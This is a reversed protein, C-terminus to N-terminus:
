KNKLKKQAQQKIEEPKYVGGTDVMLSLEALRSQSVEPKPVFEPEAKKKSKKAPKAKLQDLERKWVKLKPNKLTQIFSLAFTHFPQGNIKVFAFTGGLALSFVGLVSALWFTFLEWFIWIFGATVLLIIFQRISIPGIVKSEVEIFQPVVFQM